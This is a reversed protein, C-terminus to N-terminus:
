GGVGARGRLDGVVQSVTISWQEAARGVFARPAMRSTGYEVYGAYGATYGVFITQGLEAGSIVGTIQAGTYNYSGGAPRSGSQIPPMSDIAATVSARLYGTSVPVYSQALSVTRQSAEKWIAEMRKPQQRCWDDVIKSFELPTTAM